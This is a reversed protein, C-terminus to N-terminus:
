CKHHENIKCIARGEGVRGRACYCEKCMLQDRKIQEKLSIVFSERLTTARKESQSGFSTMSFASGKTNKMLEMFEGEPLPGGVNSGQTMKRYFVRGHYDQGNVEGVYKRYKGIINLTIDQMQLMKTMRRLCPAHQHATRESTTWLVIIKTAGARFPYKSAKAIGEFGDIENDPTNSFKLHNVAYEVEDATGLFKGNMTVQHPHAHIGKGGLSVLGFRLSYKELDDALQRVYAPIKKAFGKMGETEPVVLVIDVQKNASQFWKRGLENNGCRGCEPLHDVWKGKMRLLEIYTATVNCHKMDKPTNSKCTEYDQECAQKFPKPDITSFFPALPSKLSKFLDSCRHIYKSPNCKKPKIPKTIQCKPDKTAEWSNVFDIENETIKGTPLMMDDHGENNNTGLLGALRGHYWKAINFTCLYHEIDCLIEVGLSHRLVVYPGERFVTMNRSQVPLESDYGDHITQGDLTIKTMSEVKGDAHIKVNADESTFLLATEQSLLTFKNDRVDRALVYTCRKNKYGPFRFYQSDFTYVHDKGFIVSSSNFPPIWNMPNLMNKLHHVKHAIRHRWYKKVHHIHRARSEIMKKSHGYYERAHGLSKQTIHHNFIKGYLARATKNVHAYKAMIQKYLIRYLEKTQNYAGASHLKAKMLAETLNSSNYIDLTINLTLKGVQVTFTKVSYIGAKCLDKTMNIAVPVYRETMNVIKTLNIKKIFTGTVNIFHITTNVYDQVMPNNKTMNLWKMSMNHVKSFVMESKAVIMAKQRQYYVKVDDIKAQHKKMLMQYHEVTMNVVKMTYNRAKLLAHRTSTSNYLDASINWALNTAKMTYMHTKNLGLKLMEKTMNYAIPAYSRTLNAIKKFNLAKLYQRTKQLYMKTKAIYEKVLPHNKLKLAMGKFNIKKVYERTARLFAITKNLYKQAMPNSKTANVLRMTMTYVRKYAPTQMAKEVWKKSVYLAKGAYGKSKNLAQQAMRKATVPINKVKECADNCISVIDGNVPRPHPIIIAIVGKEIRIYNTLNPMAKRVGLITHNVYGISYHAFRITKNVLELAEYASTKAYGPLTEYFFKDSDNQMTSYHKTLNKHLAQYHIHFKKYHHGVRERLLDEIGYYKDIFIITEILENKTFNLVPLLPKLSEITAKMTTNIYKNLQIKTANLKKLGEKYAIKSLNLAKNATEITFNYAVLTINKIKLVTQRPTSKTANRLLEITFNYGKLTLNYAKSSFFQKTMNNKMEIALNKYKHYAPVVKNKYFPVVKNKYYPVVKNKYYPVIKVNYIEIYKEATKNMWMKTVNVKVMTWNRAIRYYKITVNKALDTYNKAIIYYKKAYVKAKEFVITYNKKLELAFKEALKAYNGAKITMNKYFVKGVSVWKLTINKVHMTANQIKVTTNKAFEITMFVYKHEVIERLKMQKFDNFGKQVAIKTDNYIKKAKLKIEEVKTKLKLKLEEAKVKLIEVKEKLKLLAADAKAKAIVAIEKSIEAFEHQKIEELYDSWIEHNIIEEVATDKIMETLNKKAEMYISRAYEKPNAMIENKKAIIEAKKAKIINPLTTNLYVLAERYKTELKPRTENIFAKVKEIIEKAKIIAKNYREKIQHKAVFNKFDKHNTINRYFEISINKAKNLNLVALTKAKSFYVITKNKIMYVTEFDMNDYTKKLQNLQTIYIGQASKAYPAFIAVFQKGAIISVNKTQNYVSIVEMTINRITKNAIVIQAQVKTKIEQVKAKIEEVKAKVKENLKKARVEIVGYAERYLEEVTKEKNEGYWIKVGEVSKNALEKADKYLKVLYVKGKGYYVIVQPRVTKNLYEIGRITMNHTTNFLKLTMNRSIHFYKITMNRSIKYYTVTFNKTNNFIRIAHVKGIKYYKIAADRTLNYAKLTITKTKNFMAIAKTSYNRYLQLGLKKSVSYIKSAMEEYTMNEYKRIKLVLSELQIVFKKKIENFKVMAKRKAVQTEKDAINYIDVVIDKYFEYAENFEQEHEKAFEVIYKEAKKYTDQVKAISVNKYEGFSSLATAYHSNHFTYLAFTANKALEFHKVALIKSGEVISILEKVFAERTIQMKVLKITLNLAKDGFTAIERVERMIKGGHKAYKNKIALARETLNLSKFMKTYKDVINNWKEGIALSSYRNILDIKTWMKLFPTAFDLEQIQKAVSQVGISMNNVFATMNKISLHINQISLEVVDEPRMEMIKKFNQNLTKMSEKYSELAKKSNNFTFEVTKNVLERTHNVLKFVKLITIDIIEEPTKKSLDDLFKLVTTVNSTITHNYENLLKGVEQVTLKITKELAVGIPIKKVTINLIQHMIDKSLPAFPTFMPKNFAVIDMYMEKMYQVSPQAREIYKVIQPKVRKYISVSVKVILKTLPKTYKNFNRTVNSVALQVKKSIIKSLNKIEITLNRVLHITKITTNRMFKPAMKIVKKSFMAAEQSVNITKEKLFIIHNELTKNLVQLNKIKHALEVAIKSVNKWTCKADFDCSFERVQTMYKDAIEGIKLKRIEIARIKKVLKNAQITVNKMLEKQLDSAIKVARNVFHSVKVNRIKIEGVMITVNNGWSQLDGSINTLHANVIKLHGKVTELHAQLQKTINPIKETKIKIIEARFKKYLLTANRTLMPLDKIAQKLVKMTMNYTQSSINVAKISINKALISINKYAGNFDYNKVAKYLKIVHPKMKGEMRKVIVELQKTLNKASKLTANYLKATENIIIPKLSQIKSAVYNVTTTNWTLFIRSAEPSLKYIARSENVIDVGLKRQLTIQLQKNNPMEAVVQGSVRSTLTTNFIINRAERDLKLFWGTMHENCTLYASAIYAKLDFRGVFGIRRDRIQISGNLTKTDKDYSGFFKVKEKMITIDSKWTKQLKEVIADFNFSKKLSSLKTKIKLGDVTHWSAEFSAPKQPIFDMSIFFKRQQKNFDLKHSWEKAFAKITSTILFGNSRSFSGSFSVKKGPLYEIQGDYSESETTFRFFSEVARKFATTTSRVFLGDKTNWEFTNTLPIRPLLEVRTVINKRQKYWVISHEVNKNPLYEVKIYNALEQTNNVIRSSISVRRNSSYMLAAKLEHDMSSETSKNNHSLDWGYKFNRGLATLSFIFNLERKGENKKYILLSSDHFIMKTGNRIFGSLEMERQNNRLRHEARIVAVYRGIQYRLKLIKENTINRFTLVSNAIKVKNWLLQTSVEKVTAQNVLTTAIEMSKKMVNVNVGFTRSSEQKMYMEAGFSKNYITMNMGVSKLTKNHQYKLWTEMYITANYKSSLHLACFDPEEYRQAKVEASRNMMTINLALSRDISSNSFTACIQGYRRGLFESHFCLSKHLTLNKLAAVLSVSYNQYASGLCLTTDDGDKMMKSLVGFSRNLASANFQVGINGPLKFYSLSANVTKKLVTANFNFGKEADNVFYSWVGEISKNMTQANFRLGKESETNFYTWLAEMTKNVASANFKITKENQNNLYSWAAQITKNLATANFRLAKATPVDVFSIFSSASKNLGNASFKLGKETPLTFFTWLAEVTKNMATANLKITKEQSLNFFSLVSEISKNFASANFKISKVTDARSYMWLAEITKNLASANLKLIKDNTYNLFSLAASVTKNLGSANFTLSKIQTLNHFSVDASFNKNIINANFNLSKHVGRNIYSWFAEATKNLASGNVKISKLGDKVILAIAANVSKGMGTSNFKFGKESTYNFFTWKAQFPKGLVSANTKISKENTQNVFGTYWAFERNKNDHSAKFHLGKESGLSVYSSKVTFSQKCPLIFTKLTAEKNVKNMAGNMEISINKITTFNFKLTNEEEGLQGNFRLSTKTCTHNAIINFSKSPISLEANAFIYKGPWYTTNSIIGYTSSKNYIQTLQSVTYNKYSALWKTGIERERTNPNTKNFYQGNLIIRNGYLADRADFTVNVANTLNHYSASFNGFKYGLAGSSISFSKQNDNLWLSVNAEFEREWTAGPTSIRAIIDFNSEKDEETPLRHAVVKYVRLKPDTPLVSLSFSAPGSLPFFPAKLDRFAVPLSLRGCVAVGLVRTFNLCPSPEIRRDTGRIQVENDNLTAFLSSSVNFIQVPKTPAGIEFKLIQGQKYTGNGKIETSTYMSTNLLVGAEAFIADVGMRGAVEIVASPKLNGRVEFAMPGWFMNRIDFKGNMEVSVVSTGKADLKLPLGLMTPVTTEVDLFMLSKTFTKKGGKALKILMDVMNVNDAESQLWSIDDFSAVRIENGFLKVSVAGSPKHKMNDMKRNMKELQPEVKNIDDVISRRGRVKNPLEQEEESRAEHPKLNFMDMIRNDPYIGDEGFYQEILTEFGEFRAAAELLNISAGLVDVTMNVQTSRPFFSNPHYVLHGQMSGGAGLLENYYSTEISRSFRLRNLNFERLEKGKLAKKIMDAMPRGYVPETSEMANTVHSWVFSGVQKNVENKQIETIRKFVEVSPCRVLALYTAIRIEVDFHSNGYINLLQDTTDRSCPMRRLAELAAISMNKPLDGMACKLLSYTVDFPRGANGIAKLAMIIKEAEEPTEFKCSKNILSSLWREAKMVPSNYEMSDCRGEECFKHILTGLTLMGTRSARAECLNLVHGIMEESPSNVLALGSLFMNGREGNVLENKIAHNIVKACGSTGCHPIADLLYMQFRDKEESKCVGTKDCEFINEWVKMMARNELKRLSFVLKSFLRASEPKTEERSQHVLHQILEIVRQSELSDPEPSHHQFSLPYTQRVELSMAIPNVKKIYQQTLVQKSVTSAGANIGSSFPRFMHKEYCVIKKIARKASIIYRCNSSSDLMNLSKEDYHHFHIGLNTKSRDSCRKLNKTKSVVKDIGNLHSSHIRYTVPCKGAVDTERKTVQKANIFQVQLASLIGKKINLIKSTESPSPSVEIIAGNSSKFILDHAQLERAFALTDRSPKYELPVNKGQSEWLEVSDIKLVHQCPGVSKINCRAKIKLASQANSSGNVSTVTEGEYSYSYEKGYLFRSTESLSVLYSPSIQFELHHSKYM